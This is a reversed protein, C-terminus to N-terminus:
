CLHKTIEQPVRRSIWIMLRFFSHFSRIHIRAIIAIYTRQSKAMSTQLKESKGDMGEDKEPPYTSIAGKITFPQRTSYKTAVSYFLALCDIFLYSIDWIRWPALINGVFSPWKQLLYPYINWSWPKCRSITEM